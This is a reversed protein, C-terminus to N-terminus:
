VEGKRMKDYDYGLDEIIKRAGKRDLNFGVGITAKGEKSLPTSPTIRLSTVDDYAYAREDEWEAIFNYTKTLWQEHAKGARDAVVAHRGITEERAERVATLHDTGEDYKKKANNAAETDVLGRGTLENLYEMLAEFAM